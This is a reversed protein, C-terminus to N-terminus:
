AGRGAVGRRVSAFDRVAFDTGGHGDYTLPGCTHDKADAGPDHDVYNAIWCDRDVICDVPLALRFDTQAAPDARASAYALLAGILCAVPPWLGSLVSGFVTKNRRSRPM